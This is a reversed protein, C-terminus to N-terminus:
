VIEIVNFPVSSAFGQRKVPFIGSPTTGFSFYFNKLLDKIIKQLNESFFLKSDTFKLLSPRTVAFM